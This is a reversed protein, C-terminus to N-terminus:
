MTKTMKHLNEAHVLHMRLMPLTNNAFAKIDSDNGDKAEKEFEKIDKKHDDVMLDIYSKDFDSGTKKQLDDKEKQGDNSLTAPLMVNKSAALAKLKEGGKGHDSVMMSGFEKVKASKANQQALQGLEVELMGGNAANVLFAADEKSPMPAASSPNQESTKQSDIKSANDEKAEKVSDPNSNNCALANLGLALGLCFCFPIKM